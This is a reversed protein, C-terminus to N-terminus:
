IWTGQVRTPIGLAAVQAEELSTLQVYGEGEHSVIGLMIEGERYFTPDELWGEDHPSTMYTFLGDHFFQKIIALSKPSTRWREASRTHEQGAYTVMHPRAAAQLRYASLAAVFRDNFPEPSGQMGMLTVSFEDVGRALCWEALEWTQNPSLDDASLYRIPM